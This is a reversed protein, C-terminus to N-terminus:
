FREYRNLQIASPRRQGQGLELAHGESLPRVENTRKFVPSAEFSKSGDPNREFVRFTSQQPPNPVEELANGSSKRRHFSKPLKIPM